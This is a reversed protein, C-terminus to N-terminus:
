QGVVHTGCPEIGPHAADAAVLGGVDVIAQDGFFVGVPNVIWVEGNSLLAGDIRTPDTSLVEVVLHPTATLRAVENTADFVMVDPIFEDPGPKWGWAEIM